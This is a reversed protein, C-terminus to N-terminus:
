FPAEFNRVYTVFCGLNDLVKAIRIAVRRYTMEVRYCAMDFDYAVGMPQNIWRVIKEVTNVYAVYTLDVGAVLYDTAIDTYLKLTNAM